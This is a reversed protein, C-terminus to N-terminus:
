YERLITVTKKSVNILEEPVLYKKRYDTLFITEKNVIFKNSSM